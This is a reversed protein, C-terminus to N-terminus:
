SMVDPACRKIHSIQHMIQPMPHTVHSIPCRIHELSHAICLAHCACRVVSAVRHADHAQLPLSSLLLRRLALWDGHGRMETGTAERWDPMRTRDTGCNVYVSCRSDRDVKESSRTSGGVGVPKWTPHAITCAGDAPLAVKSKARGVVREARGNGTVPLRSLWTQRVGPLCCCGFFLSLLM